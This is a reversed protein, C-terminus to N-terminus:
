LDKQMNVNTEVYGLGRYLRRATENHGFVHLAISAIGNSRAWDELALMAAKGFGQGRRSDDIEIDYIFAQGPRRQTGVWLIGVGSGDDARVTWLYQGPSSLGEPLYQRFEAESRALSEEATWNGAAVHDAAYAAVARERWSRYDAESMPDLRVNAM